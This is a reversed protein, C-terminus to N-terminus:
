ENNKEKKNEKVEKMMRNLADAGNYESVDKESIENRTIIGDEMEGLVNIKGPNEYIYKWIATNFDISLASMLHKIEAFDEKTLKSIDLFAKKM